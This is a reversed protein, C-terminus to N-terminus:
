KQPIDGTQPLVRAVLAAVSEVGLKTMIRRRHVDLTKRSIGLRTAIVKNPEGSVILDMVRRERPTLRALRAATEARRAHQERTARDRDIAALTCDLLEQCEFPKQLFDLAGLKMAKVAAGVDGYGTIIIVPLSIGRGPLLRLLELGSMGPMRLDLVLCGPRVPDYSQLFERASAYSEVPCRVSEFLAQLLNRVGPDDDVVFVTAEAHM